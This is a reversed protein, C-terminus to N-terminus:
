LGFDGEVFIPFNLLNENDVVSKNLVGPGPFYLRELVIVTIFFLSGVQFIPVALLFNNISTSLSIGPGPLYLM